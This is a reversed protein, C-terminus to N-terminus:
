GRDACVGGFYPLPMLLACMTEPTDTRHVDESLTM